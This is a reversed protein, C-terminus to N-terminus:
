GLNANLPKGKDDFVVQEYMAEGMGMFLAGEVQAHLLNPNIVTGCDHVDWVDTVMVQGPSPQVKCSAFLTVPGHDLEADCVLGIVKM